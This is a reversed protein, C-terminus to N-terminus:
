WRSYFDNVKDLGTDLLSKIRVDQGNDIPTYAYGGKDTNNNGELEKYTEKCMLENEVEKLIDYINKICKKNPMIKMVTIYDNSTTSIKKVFKKATDQELEDSIWDSFYTSMKVVVCGDKKTVEFIPQSASDLDASAEYVKINTSNEEKEEKEEKKAGPQDTAGAYGKTVKDKIIKLCEAEMKDDADTVLKVENISTWIPKRMEIRAEYDFGGSKNNSTQMFAFIERESEEGMFVDFTDEEDGSSAGPGSDPHKHWYFIIKGLDEMSLEKVIEGWDEPKFHVHAGNVIQKPFVLKEITIEGDKVKGLGLAGIESDWNKTFWKILKYPKDELRLQASYKTM